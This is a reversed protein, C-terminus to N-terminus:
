VTANPAPPLVMTPLRTFRPRLPVVPGFARVPVMGVGTKTANWAINAIMAGARM